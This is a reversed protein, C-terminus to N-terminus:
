AARRRRRRGPKRKGPHYQREFFATGAEFDRVNGARIDVRKKQSNFELLPSSARILITEIEGEHTKNEVVFFSFYFLELPHAKKHSQLRGFISGRGIYRPYGMSDHAIYVGTRRLGLEGMQKRVPVLADYPLKEGVVRFLSRVGKPRGPARVLKGHVVKWIADKWVTGNVRKTRRARRM